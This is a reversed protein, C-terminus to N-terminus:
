NWENSALERMTVIVKNVKSQAENFLNPAILQGGRVNQKAAGNPRFRNGGLDEMYVTGSVGSFSGWTMGTTFAVLGAQEDASDLKWGIRLVAKAALKVLLAKTGIFTGDPQLSIETPLATKNATADVPAGCGVCQSAKDSIERGCEGCTILAM